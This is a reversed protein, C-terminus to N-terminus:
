THMQCDYENCQERSHQTPLRLHASAHLRGLLAIADLVPSISNGEFHIIPDKNNKCKREM